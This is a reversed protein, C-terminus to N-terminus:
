RWGVDVQERTAHDGDTFQIYILDQAAQIGNKGYSRGEDWRYVELCVGRCRMNM